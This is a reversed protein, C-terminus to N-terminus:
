PQSMREDPRHAAGWLAAVQQARVIVPRDIFTGDALASAGSSAGESEHGVAALVKMAQQYDEDSPTFAARIHPLQSPHLATRGLFGFSALQRTDSLLAEHDRINLFASGMPPNLGAAACAIVLRIRIHEIVQPASAQLEARLDGEGLSVGAVHGSACIERLNEVGAATEILANIKVGPRLQGAVLDLDAASGVKPVRVSNVAPLERVMALDDSVHESGIPNIRVELHPLQAAGDLTSLVDSLNQRARAKDPPAVADELDYIVADPGFEIAKLIRDSRTPPSYLWTVLPYSM